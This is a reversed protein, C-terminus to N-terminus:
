AIYCWQQDSRNYKAQLFDRHVIEARLRSVYHSTIAMNGYFVQVPMNRTPLPESQTTWEGDRHYNLHRTTMRDCITYLQAAFPLQDFNTKTDKLSKVHELCMRSIVCSADKIITTMCDANNPYQRKSILDRISRIVLFMAVLIAFFDMQRQQGFLACRLKM